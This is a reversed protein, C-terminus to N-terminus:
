RVGRVEVGAEIKKILGQLVEGPGFEVFHTAGDKVMNQITKTWLVPATLQQILNKKITEPHTEPLATYNQYVPCVPTQFDTKEIAQALEEQAPLMLPSHFAGGVNLMLVRKAGAAKLAESALEL